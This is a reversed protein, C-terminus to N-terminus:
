DKKKYNLGSGLDTIHVAEAVPYNVAVYNQLKLSQTELDNKQDASSVRAYTAITMQHKQRQIFQEEIQNVNFRRHGGSPLFAPVLTGAKLWRYATM